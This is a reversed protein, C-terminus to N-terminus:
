HPVSALPTYSAGGPDLQSRSCRRGRDARLTLPPTPPLERARESGPRMRAVRSTRASASARRSGASRRRWSAASRATCRRAAGARSRRGRGRARAPAAAAAVGARRRAAGRGGRALERRPRRARGRDRRGGVAAARRPLVADPAAVGADLRRSRAAAGSRARAGVARARRPGGAAARRRRVAAARRERPRRRTPSASCCGGCCTCRRRDHHARARRRASGRQDTRRVLRRGDPGALAIWVLGVPKEPTGGDPGAIGTVGIGIDAGVRERAGEALAVAVEESVAGHAEILEAPVGRAREKVENAYAVIGGRLYASSGPRDTLRGLMLGGTCSEAVAVTLGQEVCCRRSRSTSAPATTPTSCTPRPARARDARLRRLGRRRAARLADRDRARRRARLDHGRDARARVGAAEAERLTTAIESEPLGFLRLM